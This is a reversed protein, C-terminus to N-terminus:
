DVKALASANIDIFGRLNLQKNEEQLKALQRRAEIEQLSRPAPVAFTFTQHSM